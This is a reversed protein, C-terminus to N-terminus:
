SGSFQLVLMHWPDSAPQLHGAAGGHGVPMYDAMYMDVVPNYQAFGEHPHGQMPLMSMDIPLPQAMQQHQLHAAMGMDAMPQWYSNVDTYTQYPAYGYGQRPPVYSEPEREFSQSCEYSDQAHTTYGQWSSPGVDDMDAYMPAPYEPLPPAYTVTPSQEPMDRLSLGAQLNSDSPSSATPSKHSVLRTRGQLAGLEEDDDKTSSGDAAVSRPMTPSTDQYESMSAQARAKLKSLIPQVGRLYTSNCHVTCLSPSM